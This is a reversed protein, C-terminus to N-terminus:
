ILLNESERIIQRTIANSKDISKNENCQLTNSVVELITFGRAFAYDFCWKRMMLELDFNETVLYQQPCFTDGRYIEILDLEAECAEWEVPSLQRGFPKSLDAIRKHPHYIFDWKEDESEEDTLYSLLIKEYRKLYDCMEEYNKFTQLCPACTGYLKIM